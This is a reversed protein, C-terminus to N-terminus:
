IMVPYWHIFPNDDSLIRLIGAINLVLHDFLLLFVIPWTGMLVCWGSHHDEVMSMHCCFWIGLISTKLCISMHRGFWADSHHDGILQCTYMFDVVLTIPRWGWLWLCITCTGPALVNSLVFTLNKWVWLCVGYMIIFGVCIFVTCYLYLTFFLTM